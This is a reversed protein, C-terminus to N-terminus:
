RAVERLIAVVDLLRLGHVELGSVTTLRLPGADAREKSAPRIAVRRFAGRCPAADQKQWKWLTSTSLGLVKAASKISVQHEALLAVIDRRLGVPVLRKGNTARPSQDLRARLEQFVADRSM